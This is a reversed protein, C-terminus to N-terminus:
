NKHNNIASTAGDAKKNSELLQEFLWDALLQELENLIIPQTPM